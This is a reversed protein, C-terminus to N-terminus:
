SGYRPNYRICGDRLTEPKPKKEGSRRRKLGSRLMARDAELKKVGENDIAQGYKNIDRLVADAQLKADNLIDSAEHRAKEIIRDHERSLKDRAEDLKERLSSAETGERQRGGNKVREM